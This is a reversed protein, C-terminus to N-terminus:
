RQKVNKHKIQLHLTRIELNTSSPRPIQFGLCEQWTSLRQPVDGAQMESENSFMSKNFGM